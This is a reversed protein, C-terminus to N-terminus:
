RTSRDSPQEAQGKASWDRGDEDLQELEVNGREALLLCQWGVSM